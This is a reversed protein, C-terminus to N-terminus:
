QDETGRGDSGLRGAAIIPYIKEYKDKEIKYSLSAAFNCSERLFVHM